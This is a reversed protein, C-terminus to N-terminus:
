ANLLKRKKSKGEFRGTVQEKRGPFGGDGSKIIAKAFVEVKDKAGRERFKSICTVTIEPPAEHDAERQILDDVFEMAKEDHIDITFNFDWGHHQFDLDTEDEGLYDKEMIDQRPTSTWEKVKFFSGALTQGDVSIRIQYEQGRQGLSM